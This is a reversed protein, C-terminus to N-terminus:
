ELWLLVQDRMRQWLGGVEVPQLAVLPAESVTEGNLSVTVAGVPTSANLPAVLRTQLDMVASLDDYSGRPITIYLDKQLALPVDELESKWVRATTIPDGAAYLKHTEFFRYGYNLLAQSADTRAKASPTGMVVAVLRMGDREASSVLCYGAADTHGTKLGDVSADRWLLSNRNHQTIGNYTYDRESYWAYYEPFEDILATALLAVNRPTTFHDEAPLGTSNQFRSDTLGLQKAHNNMLSAFADESGALHEALAVSADNGSQIIMGKLLAEVSVNTDVEIFMRSGPTRWAKESVLVPDKLDIRGEALARFIVYATMLKTLSAPEMTKDAAQEAIVWGSARDMLLYGTSPIKPPAPIPVEAPVPFSVLLLAFLTLARTM